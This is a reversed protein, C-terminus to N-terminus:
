LPKITDLDTNCGLIQSKCQDLGQRFLYEMDVQRKCLNCGSDLRNKEQLGVQVVRVVLHHDVPSSLLAIDDYGQGPVTCSGGPGFGARHTCRLEVMCLLSLFGLSAWGHGKIPIVECLRVYKEHSGKEIIVLYGGYILLAATHTHM